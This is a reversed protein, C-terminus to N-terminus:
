TMKTARRQVKKLLNIDKKHQPSCGLLLPNKLKAVPYLGTIDQCSLWAMFQEPTASSPVSHETVPFVVLELLLAVCNLAWPCVQAHEFKCVHGFVCIKRGMWGRGGNEKKYSSFPHDRCNMIINLNKTDDKNEDEDKSTYM